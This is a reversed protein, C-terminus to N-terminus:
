RALRHTSDVQGYAPDELQWVDTFAAPSTNFALSWAFTSLTETVSEIILDLNPAPAAPPLNALTFRTSIEAQLLQTVVAPNPENLLDVSVQGVRPQTWGYVNVTWWAAGALAADSAWPLTKSDGYTGYKAASATNVAHLSKGDPTDYTVDNFLVADDAVPKLDAGVQELVADLTFASVQNYRRSRAHFTLLGGGDIFLVGDETDAVDLMAADPSVGQTPQLGILESGVDFDLAASPIELYRSIRAIRQESREGAFGVSGALYHATV